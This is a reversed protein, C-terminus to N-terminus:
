ADQRERYSRLAKRTLVRDECGQLTKGPREPDPRDRCLDYRVQELTGDDAQRTTVITASVLVSGNGASVACRDCHYEGDEPWFSM